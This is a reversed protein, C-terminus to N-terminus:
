PPEPLLTWTRERGHAPRDTRARATSRAPPEGPDPLVPARAGPATVAALSTSSEMVVAFITSPATVAASRAGLETVVTM